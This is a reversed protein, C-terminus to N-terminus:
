DKGHTPSHNHEFMTKVMEKQNIKKTFAKAKCRINRNNYLVCRWGTVMKSEHYKTYAFDNEILKFHSGRSSLTFTAEKAYGTYLSHYRQLELPKAESQKSSGLRFYKFWIENENSISYSYTKHKCNHIILDIKILHFFTKNFDLRLQIFTLSIIHHSSDKSKRDNLRKPTVITNYCKM